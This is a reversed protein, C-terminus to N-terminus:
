GFKFKNSEFNGEFISSNYGLLRNAEKMYKDNLAKSIKSLPIPRRLPKIVKGIGFGRSGYDQSIDGTVKEQNELDAILAESFSIELRECISKIQERPNECLEEYKIVEFNHELITKVYSLYKVGFDKPTNQSLWVDYADRVLAIKKLDLEKNELVELNTPLIVEPKKLEKFDAFSFDRIIPLKKVEKAFQLFLSIDEKYTGSPSLKYWNKLQDSLPFLENYNPHVESVLAVDPHNQLIRSLLTGGTRPYSM